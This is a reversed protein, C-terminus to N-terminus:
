AKPMLESAEMPQAQQCLTIQLHPHNDTGLKQRLWQSAAAQKVQREFDVLRGLILDSYSRQKLDSLSTFSDTEDRHEITFRVKLQGM